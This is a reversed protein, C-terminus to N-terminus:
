ECKDSLGPGPRGPNQTRGQVAGGQAGACYDTILEYAGATFLLMISCQENGSFGAENFAPTGLSARDLAQMFIRRSGSCVVGKARPVICHLTAVGSEPAASGGGGRGLGARTRGKDGLSGCNWMRCAGIGLSLVGHITLCITM